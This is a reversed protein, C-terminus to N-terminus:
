EGHPSTGSRRDASPQPIFVYDAGQEALSSYFYGVKPERPLTRLDDYLTRVGLFPETRNQQLIALFRRSFPSHKGAEGDNVQHDEDGSTIYIRSKSELARQILVNRPASDDWHSPLLGQLRPRGNRTNGDFMGGYCVDLVLLLHPVPVKDLASSLASFALMNDTADEAQPLKSNPFVIYGEIPTRLGHGAFYVLLRDNQGYHKAWLKMIADNVERKNVDHLEIIHDSDDHFGYDRVLEQRVSSVDFIPNHLTPWGGPYHDNAVLLAFDQGM